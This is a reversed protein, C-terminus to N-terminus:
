CSLLLVHTGDVSRICGPFGAASFLLQNYNADDATDMKIVFTDWLCTSGYEIFKLIFQRHTEKDIATAEQLDDLTFGRGTYRFFGLLLLDIPVAKQGTCDSKTWRHFIEHQQIRMSLKVFEKYPLRFRQCFLKKERKSRPTTRLYLNYWLSNCPYMISETGDENIMTILHKKTSRSTCRISYMSAKQKQGCTVEKNLSLDIMSQEEEERKRKLLLYLQFKMIDLQGNPYCDAFTQPIVPQVSLSNGM